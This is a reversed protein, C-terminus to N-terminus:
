FGSSAPLHQAYLSTDYSTCRFLWKEVLFHVPSLLSILIQQNQAIIESLRKYLSTHTYFDNGIQIILAM